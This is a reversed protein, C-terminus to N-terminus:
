KQRRSLDLLIRTTEKNQERFELRLDRFEERMQRFEEPMTKLESQVTSMEKKIQEFEEKDIVSKAPNTLYGAGYWLIYGTAVLITKIPLKVQTDQTIELSKHSM